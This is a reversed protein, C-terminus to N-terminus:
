QRKKLSGLFALLLGAALGLLGTAVPHRWRPVATEFVENEQPLPATVIRYSPIEEVENAFNSNGGNRWVANSAPKLRSGYKNAYVQTFEAGFLFIQASYYVWLLILVLSGAAGYTSTASGRALYLSILYRGLLFLLTTVAAGLLVDKWTLHADPLIKFLLAFMLTLILLSAIFNIQPLIMGINPLWEVLRDGVATVVTSVALSVLLLLGFILVMGFALSRKKIINLIGQEPAPQVGWIMNLTRRLQSFLGSAAVLLLASSLVTAIVSAGSQSANAILDQIVVAAETGVLHEIESVIQGEVAAERFVLGAVAVAIVLLPALAFIAYYALAAAFLSANDRSWGKGAEKLLEFTGVVFSKM